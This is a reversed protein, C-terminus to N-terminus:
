RSGNGAILGACGDFLVDAASHGHLRRILPVSPAKSGPMWGSGPPLPWLMVSGCRAGDSCGGTQPGLRSCITAPGGASRAPLGGSTVGLLKSSRCHAIHANQAAFCRVCSTGRFGYSVIKLFCNCWNVVPAGGPVQVGFGRILLPGGPPGSRGVQASPEALHDSRESHV